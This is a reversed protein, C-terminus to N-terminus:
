AYVNLAAAVERVGIVLMNSLHTTVNEAFGKLKRLDSGWLQENGLVADVVEAPKHNQWVEYFYKASDCQIPYLEGEKQGFYKGNEEKVAKMFLLYAAFGRTFYQPVTNFEKYYNLLLPINRMQMKMTYQLTISIWQHDLYPNRFRDLVDRGYRQAVKPEIAYPIAPAIESMMLNTVFKEVTEDTLAEKVTQFGSLYAMGCLLTHTGNLMRLKLERFQEINNAIKVGDDVKSFSLVEKVKEDGQIAWLRYTEAVALLEDEYGLKTQLEALADGKPKGPVIRDVLSNCFTNEAKIWEIFNSPLQNFAAIKLVLDKLIDGNGVILETPIIVVGGQKEQFREYLWATLKAPFSSPPSQRISEEVYQLGVETTNSIVVKINPDQATELIENWQSQASLVRSIASSIINEETPVGQDIGRVCITYLNDQEAFADAGGSDTSKVVVIRGNFIGQKNAKDIFYDCLGRLLVGTGFQLVKEPLQLTTSDTLLEKSLKM